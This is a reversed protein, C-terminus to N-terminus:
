YYTSSFHASVDQRVCAQQFMVGSNEYSSEERQCAKRELLLCTEECGEQGWYGYLHMRGSGPCDNFLEQEKCCWAGWVLYRWSKKKKGKSARSLILTREMDKPRHLPVRHKNFTSQLKSIKQPKTYFENIKKLDTNRTLRLLCFLM